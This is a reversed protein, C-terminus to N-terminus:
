PLENVICSWRVDYAGAYESPSNNKTGRYWLYAPMEGLDDPDMSLPQSGYVEWQWLIGPDPNPLTRGVLLRKADSPTWQIPGPWVPIGLPFVDDEKPSPGFYLAWRHGGVTTFQLRTNTFMWNYNEPIVADPPVEPNSGPEEAPVEYPLLYDGVVYGDSDEDFYVDVGRGYVWPRKGSEELLFELGLGSVNEGLAITLAVDSITIPEEPADAWPRMTTTPPDGPQQPPDYELEPGLTLTMTRTTNSGFSVGISRSRGVFCSMADDGDAYVNSQQDGTLAPSLLTVQVPIDQKVPNDNGNDEPPGALANGGPQSVRGLIVLTAFGVLILVVAVFRIMRRREFM